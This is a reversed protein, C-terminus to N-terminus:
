MKSDTDSEIFRAIDKRDPRAESIPALYLTFFAGRLYASRRLDRRTTGHWLREGSAPNVVDLALTGIEFQEAAYQAVYPDNTRDQLQVDSKYIVVVSADSEAVARGGLAALEAAIAARVSRDLEEDWDPLQEAEGFCYGSFDATSLEPSPQSRVEIGACAALLLAALATSRRITHLM